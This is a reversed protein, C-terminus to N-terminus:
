ATQQSVQTSVFDPNGAVFFPPEQSFVERFERFEKAMQVFLLKAHRDLFEYVISKLRCTAKIPGSAV